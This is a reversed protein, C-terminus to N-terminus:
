LKHALQILILIFNQFLKNSFPKVSILISFKFFLEILVNNNRKPCFFHNATLNYLKIFTFFFFPFIQCFYHTHLFINFKIYYALLKSTKKKRKQYSCISFFFPVVTVFSFAYFFISTFHFWCYYNNFITTM